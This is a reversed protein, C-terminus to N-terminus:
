GESLLMLYRYLGITAMLCSHRAPCYLETNKTLCAPHLGIIVGVSVISCVPPNRDDFDDLDKLNMNSTCITRDGSAECRTISFYACKTTPFMKSKWLQLAHLCM